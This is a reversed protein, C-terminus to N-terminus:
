CSLGGQFNFSQFEGGGRGEVGFCGGGGFM